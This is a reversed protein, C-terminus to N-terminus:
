TVIAQIPESTVGWGGSGRTSGKVAYTGPITFPCNLSVGGHYVISWNQTGWPAAEIKYELAGAVASWSLNKSCDDYSINPPSLPM